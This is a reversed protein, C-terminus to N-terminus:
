QKGEFHKFYSFITRRLQRKLAANIQMSEIGDSIKINVDSIKTCMDKPSLTFNVQQFTVTGTM